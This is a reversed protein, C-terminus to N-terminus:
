TAIDPSMYKEIMDPQLLPRDAQTDGWGGCVDLPRYSTNMAFPANRLPDQFLPPGHPSEVGRGKTM